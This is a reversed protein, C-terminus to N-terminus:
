PDDWFGEINRGGYAIRDIIIFESTIHYAIGARREFGIIMLGPWLDNRKRGREPFNVLGSCFKRIRGTYSYARQTGSQGAIYDYLKILDDEAAPSFIVKRTV